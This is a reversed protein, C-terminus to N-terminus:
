IRSPAADVWIYRLVRGHEHDGGTIMSNAIGHRVLRDTRAADHYGRLKGVIFAWANHTRLKRHRLTTCPAHNRWDFANGHHCPPPRPGGAPSILKRARSSAM